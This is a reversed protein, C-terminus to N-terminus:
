REAKFDFGWNRKAYGYTAPHVASLGALATDVNGRGYHESFATLRRAYETLLKAKVDPQVFSYVLSNRGLQM